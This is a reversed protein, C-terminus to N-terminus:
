RKTKSLLHYEYEPINKTLKINHSAVLELINSDNGHLSIDELISIVREKNTQYLFYLEVAIIEPIQYYFDQIPMKILYILFNLDFGKDQLLKLLNDDSLNPYKAVTDLMDMKEIFNLAREKLTSYTYLMRQYAENKINYKESYHELSVLEMFVPIVERTILSNYMDPNNFFDIVHELEHTLISTKTINHRNSVYVYADGTSRLYLTGGTAELDKNTFKLHTTIDCYFEDLPEKFFPGHSALFSTADAVAVANPIIIDQHSPTISLTRISEGMWAFEKIFYEFPKLFDHERIEQRILTSIHTFGRKEKSEEPYLYNIFYTLNEIDADIEPSTYQYSKLLNLLQRLDKLSYNYTKGM